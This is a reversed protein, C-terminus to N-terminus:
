GQRLSRWPAAALLRRSLGGLGGGLAIGTADALLDLLDGHRWGTASQALEIAGGLTLLWLSLRLAPTAPYAALGLLALALFGAAHQTKDWIDFSQPPLYTVPLLSLVVVAMASVWFSTKLLLPMSNNTPHPDSFQPTDSAKHDAQHM